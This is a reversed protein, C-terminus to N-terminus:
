TVAEFVSWGGRRIADGHEDLGPPPFRVAGGVSSPMGTLASANTDQLAELVSKVIGNPVGALDLRERWVSAPQTSL